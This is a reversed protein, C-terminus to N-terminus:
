VFVTGLDLLWRLVRFGLVALNRWSNGKDQGALAAWTVPSEGAHM